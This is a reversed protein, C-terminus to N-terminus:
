AIPRAAPLARLSFSKIVVIRLLLFAFYPLILYIPRGLRFFVLSFISIIIAEEEIMTAEKAVAVIAQYETETLMETDEEVM